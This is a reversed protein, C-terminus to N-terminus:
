KASGVFSSMIQLMIIAIFFSLDLFGVPPIVARIPKIIPEVLGRVIRTFAFRQQGDVWSMIM